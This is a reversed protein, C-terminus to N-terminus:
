YLEEYYRNELIGDTAFHNINHDSTEINFFAGAMSKLGDIDIENEDCFAKLTDHVRVKQSSRIAPHCEGTMHKYYAFYWDMFRSIAEDSKYVKPVSVPSAQSIPQPTESAAVM